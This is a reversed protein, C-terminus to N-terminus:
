EKIKLEAKHFKKVTQTPNIYNLTGIPTSLRVCNSKSRSQLDAHEEIKLYYENDYLFIDGTLLDGAQIYTNNDIIKLNTM